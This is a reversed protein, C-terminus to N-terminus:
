IQAAAFFNLKKKQKQVLIHKEKFVRNKVISFKDVLVELNMRESTRLLDHFAMNGHFAIWLSSLVAWKM